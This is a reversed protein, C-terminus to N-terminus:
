ILVATPEDTHWACYISVFAKSSHKIDTSLIYAVSGVLLM